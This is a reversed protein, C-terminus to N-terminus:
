VTNRQVINYQVTNQQALSYQITNYLVKSYQIAPQDASKIYYHFHGGQTIEGM